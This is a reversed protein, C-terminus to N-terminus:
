NGESSSKGSHRERFDHRKVRNFIFLSLFRWWARSMRRCLRRRRNGRLRICSFVKRNIEVDGYAPHGGAPHFPGDIAFVGDELIEPHIGQVDANRMVLLDVRQEPFKARFIEAAKLIDELKSYVRWTWYVLLTRRSKRLSRYFRDIRRDFKDRVAPYTEELPVDTLFDHVFDVGVVLDRYYDHEHDDHPGRPPNAAKRLNEMKLFGEFDRDVLEAVGTMGITWTGIWDFPYSALRLRSKILHWACGCDCGISCVFDYKASLM